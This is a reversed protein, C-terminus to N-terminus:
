SELLNLRPGVDVVLAYFAACKLGARAAVFMLFSGGNSKLPDKAYSLFLPLYTRIHMSCNRFTDRPSASADRM